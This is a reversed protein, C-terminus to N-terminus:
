RNSGGRHLYRHRPCRGAVIHGAAPPPDPHLYCVEVQGYILGCTQCYVLRKTSRLESM